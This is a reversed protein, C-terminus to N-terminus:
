TCIWSPASPAAWRARCRRPRRRSSTSSAAQPAHVARGGDHGDAARRRVRHHVGVRAVRDDAAPQRREQQRRLVHEPQRQRQDRRGLLLSSIPRNIGAAVLKEAVFQDVSVKLQGEYYGHDLGTIGVPSPTAGTSTSRRAHGRGARHQGQDGGAPRDDRSFTTITRARCAPRRGRRAPPDRRHLVAAAAQGAPHRRPGPAARGLLSLFPALMLGAGVSSAFDRRSLKRM